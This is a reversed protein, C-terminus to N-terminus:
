ENVGREPDTGDVNQPLVIELARKIAAISLTLLSLGRQTFPPDVDLNSFFCLIIFLKNLLYEDFFSEFVTAELSCFFFVEM